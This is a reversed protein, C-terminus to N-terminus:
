PAELSAMVFPTVFYHCPLPLGSLFPDSQQQLEARPGCVTSRSPGRARGAQLERHTTGACFVKIKSLKSCHIHVQVETIKLFWSKRNARTDQDTRAATVPWFLHPVAPVSAQGSEARGAFVM